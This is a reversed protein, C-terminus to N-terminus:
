KNPFYETLGVAHSKCRTESVRAPSDLETYILIINARLVKKKFTNLSQPFSETFLWDWIIICDKISVM